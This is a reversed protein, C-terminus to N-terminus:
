ARNEFQGPAIQEWLGDVQVQPDNGLDYTSWFGFLVIADLDADNDLDAWDSGWGYVQYRNETDVTLGSADTADLWIEPADNFVTSQMSYSTKWSSFLFDPIEDDNLDAVGMGMDEADPHLSTDATFQGDQYHIVVTPRVKGFDNAIILEPQLDGDLDYWGSSFTYGEHAETPLRSSIDAFTGDGLNEYLEAPEGPIMDPDDYHEPTIGYNGVFLDLDGDGDFDGWSGSQSRLNYATMAPPTANDFYGTGDNKLLLNGAGWRTLFLDLDGDGDYDVATGGVTYRFAPGLFRQAGEEIFEVDAPTAGPQVSWFQNKNEGTLVMQLTGDGIFDGLIAGGGWTRATSSELAEAQRREFNGTSRAEPNICTQVGWQVLTNDTTPVVPTTPNGTDDPQGCQCSPLLLLAVLCPSHAISFSNPM